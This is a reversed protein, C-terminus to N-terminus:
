PNKEINDILKAMVYFLNYEYLVRERMVYLDEIKTIDSKIVNIIYNCVEAPLMGYKFCPFYEPFLDRINPAGSYIPISYALLPDLLKESVYYNLSTNEICIHYKYDDLVDRKDEIPQHGFGFLDIDAGFYKKLHKVVDLRWQHGPTFNKASCIVSLLKTKVPDKLQILDNFNLNVAVPKHKLGLTLDFSVGYWWDFIGPCVVSKTVAKSDNYNYSTILIGYNKLLDNDPPPGTEPQESHIYIRKDIPFRSILDLENSNDYTIIYQDNDTPKCSFEYGPVKGESNYTQRLSHGYLLSPM